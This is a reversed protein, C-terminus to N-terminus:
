LRTWFTLDDAAEVVTRLHWHPGLAHQAAHHYGGMGGAFLLARNADRTCTDDIFEEEGRQRSGRM